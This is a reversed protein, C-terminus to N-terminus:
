ERGGEPQTAANAGPVTQATPTTYYPDASTPFDLRERAQDISRDLLWDETNDM